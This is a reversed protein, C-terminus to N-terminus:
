FLPWICSNSKVAIMIRQIRNTLHKDWMSYLLTFCSNLFGYVVGIDFEYIGTDISLWYSWVNRNYLVIPVPQMSINGKQSKIEYQQSRFMISDFRRCSMCVCTCYSFPQLSVYLLYAFNHSSVNKKGVQRSFVPVDPWM